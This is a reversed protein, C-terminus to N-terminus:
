DYSEKPQSRGNLLHSIIVVLYVIHSDIIQLLKLQKVRLLPGQLYTLSM